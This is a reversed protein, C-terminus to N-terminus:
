QKGQTSNECEIVKQSFKYFTYDSKANETNGIKNWFCVPIEHNKLNKQICPACENNHKQPHFPCDFIECTCFALCSM